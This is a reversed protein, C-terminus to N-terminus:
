EGVVRLGRVGSALSMNGTSANEIHESWWCMMVRRQQVYEARNCARRVEKHDVHALAAEVVDPDFGQENLTTSALARLGHSVLEGTSYINKLHLSVNDTSTDFLEAIQQQYLWINGSRVAVDLAISGDENQYIQLEDV